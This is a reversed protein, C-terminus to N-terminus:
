DMVVTTIGFAYRARPMTRKATWGVENVVDYSEVSDLTAPLTHNETGGFVYIVGNVLASGHYYRGQTMPARPNWVPTATQIDMSYFDNRGSPTPYLISGGTFYVNRGLALCSAGFNRIRNTTNFTDTTNASTYTSATGNYSSLYYVETALIGSRGGIIFASGMLICYGFEARATNITSGTNSWVNGVPDYVYFQTSFAGTYGGALFFRGDAYMLGAGRVKTATAHVNGATWQLTEPDFIDVRNQPPDATTVGGVILIKGRGSAVAIFKRPVPLTTVNEFWTDTEPDYLDVEALLNSGDTGGFLWVGRLRQQLSPATSSTMVSSVPQVAEEMDGTLVEPNSTCSPLWLLLSLVILSLAKMM